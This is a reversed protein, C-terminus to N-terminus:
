GFLYIFIVYLAPLADVKKYVDWFLVKITSGLYRSEKLACHIGFGPKVHPVYVGFGLYLLGCWKSTFCTPAQTWQVRHPLSVVRRSANRQSLIWYYSKRSCYIIILCLKELSNSTSEILDYLRSKEDRKKGDSCWCPVIYKEKIILFEFM